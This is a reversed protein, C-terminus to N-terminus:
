QCCLHVFDPMQYDDAARLLDKRTPLDQPKPTSLTNTYIYDLLSKITELSFSSVIITSASSTSEYLGSSSLARFYESRAALVTEHAPLTSPLPKTITSNETHHGCPTTALVTRCVWTESSCRRRCSYLACEFSSKITVDIEVSGDRLFISRLSDM